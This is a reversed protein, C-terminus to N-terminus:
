SKFLVKDIDLLRDHMGKVSRRLKTFKYEENFEGEELNRNFERLEAFNVKLHDLESLIKRYVDMKIFLPEEQQQQLPPLQVMERKAVIKVPPAPKVPVEEMPMPPPSPPLPRDVGVAEKVKDPEIVKRTPAQSPFQLSGQPVKKGEPFPVKPKKKGFLWGM